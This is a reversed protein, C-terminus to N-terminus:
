FIAVGVLAGAGFSALCIGLCTTVYGTFYVMALKNAPAPEVGLRQTMAARAGDWSERFQTVGFVVGLIAATIWIQRLSLDLAVLMAGFVALFLLYVTLYVRMGEALSAEAVAADEERLNLEDRGPDKAVSRAGARVCAVGAAWLVVGSAFVVACEVAPTVSPV